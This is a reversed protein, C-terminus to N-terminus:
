WTATADTGDAIRHIYWRHFAWVPMERQNYPGPLYDGSNMSAQVPRCCVEDEGQVLDAFDEQAKKFKEYNPSASAERHTIYAWTFTSEQPGHPVTIYTQLGDPTQSLILNPYIAFYVFKETAWSPLDPLPPVTADEPFLEGADPDFLLHVEAYNRNDGPKGYSIHTPTADELSVRHTGLIHYTEIGNEFMVKWNWACAYPREYLLELTDANWPELLKGLKSLQQHLDPSDDRFNVFVVGQWVSTRIEPLAIGCALMEPMEPANVLEGGLNYTWRHYGCQFAHRNGEGLAVQMGRHRCVNSFCRIQGDHDRLILLPRGALELTTYDGRNPLKAAPFLAVWERTFIREMEAAYIKEDHYIRGPLCRAQEIPQVTAAIEERTLLEAPM